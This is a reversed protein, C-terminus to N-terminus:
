YSSITDVFFVKKDSLLKTVKQLESNGGKKSELYSLDAGSFADGVSDRVSRALANSLPIAVILASLAPNLHSTMLHRTIPHNTLPDKAV